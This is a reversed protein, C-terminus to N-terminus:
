MAGATAWPTGTGGRQVQIKAHDPQRPDPAHSEALAHWGSSHCIPSGGFEVLSSRDQGSRMEGTLASPRRTGKASLWVLSWAHVEERTRCDSFPAFLAQDIRAGGFVGCSLGFALPIHPGSDSPVSRKLLLSFSAGV